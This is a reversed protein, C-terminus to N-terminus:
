RVLGRKQDREYRTQGNRGFYRPSNKTFRVASQTTQTRQGTQQNTYQYTRQQQGERIQTSGRTIQNLRSPDSVINGIETRSNHVDITGPHFARTGTNDYIINGSKIGVTEMLLPLAAQVLPAIDPNLFKTEGDITLTYLGSGGDYTIRRIDGNQKSIRDRIFDVTAITEDIIKNRIQILTQGDNILKTIGRNLESNPTEEISYEAIKKVDNFLRTLAPNTSPDSGSSIPMNKQSELETKLTQLQPLGKNLLNSRKEDFAKQTISSSVRGDGGYFSQSNLDISMEYDSTALKAFFKLKDEPDASNYLQNLRQQDEPNVSLETQGAYILSGTARLAVDTAFKKELYFLDFFNRQEPTYKEEIGQLLEGRSVTDYYRTNGFIVNNKGQRTVITRGFQNKTIKFDNTGHDSHIDNITFAKSNTDSIGLKGISLGIPSGEILLDNNYVEGGNVKLEALSGGLQTTMFGREYRSLEPSDRISEESIIANEFTNIKAVLEKGLQKALDIDRENFAKQAIESIEGLAIEYGPNKLITSLADLQESTFRSSSPDNSLIERAPNIFSEEFVAASIDKLNGLAFGNLIFNNSQSNKKYSEILPGIGDVKEKMLKVAETDFKGEKIDKLGQLYKINGNKFSEALIPTFDDFFTRGKANQLLFGKQGDKGEFNPDYVLINQDPLKGDNLKLFEDFKEKSEIYQTDKGTFFQHSDKKLYSNSLQDISGDENFTVSATNLIEIPEGKNDKGPKRYSSIVEGNSTTFQAFENDKDDAFGMSIKTKDKTADITLHGDGNWRGTLPDNDDPLRDENLRILKNTDPDFFYGRQNDGVKLTASGTKKKITLIHGDTTKEYTMDTIPNEPHAKNYLELDSGQFYVKSNGFVSGSGPKTNENFGSMKVNGYETGFKGMINDRQAPDLNDWIEQTVSQSKEAEWNRWFDSDIEDIMQKQQDPTLTQINKHLTSIDKNDKFKDLETKFEPETLPTPEQNQSLILTVSLLLIISLISFIKKYIM